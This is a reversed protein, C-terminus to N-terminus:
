FRGDEGPFLGNIGEVYTSVPQVIDHMLCASPTRWIYLHNISCPAGLQNYM